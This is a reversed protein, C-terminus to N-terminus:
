RPRSRSGKTNWWSRSTTSCIWNARRRGGYVFPHCAQRPARLAAAAGVIHGSAGLEQGGTRRAAVVAFGACIKGVGYGCDRFFHRRAISSGGAAALHVRVPTPRASTKHADNM